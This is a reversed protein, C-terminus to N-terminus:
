PSTTQLNIQRETVNPHIMNTSENIDFSQLVESWTRKKTSHFVWADMANKISSRERTSGNLFSSFLSFAERPTHHALALAILEPGQEQQLMHAIYGKLLVADADQSGLADEWSKNKFSNKDIVIDQQFHERAYVDCECAIKFLQALLAVIMCFFSITKGYPAMLLSTWITIGFTALTWGVILAIHALESMLKHKIRGILRFSSLTPFKIWTKIRKLNLEYFTSLSLGSFSEKVIKNLSTSDGKTFDSVEPKIDTLVHRAYQENLANHVNVWDAVSLSEPNSSQVVVPNGILQNLKALYHAYSILATYEEKNQPVATIAMIEDFENPTLISRLKAVLAPVGMPQHCMQQFFQEKLSPLAVTKFVSAKLFDFIAM